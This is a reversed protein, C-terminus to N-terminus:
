ELICCNAYIVVGGIFLLCNGCREEGPRHGCNSRGGGTLRLLPSLMLSAM